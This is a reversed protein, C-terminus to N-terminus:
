LKKFWFLGWKQKHWKVDEPIYETEIWEKTHKESLYKGDDASPNMIVFEELEMGDLASIITMPEFIRGLNFELKEKGILVSFYADGGKWLVRQVSKLCKLWAEPDVLDGWRGLGMTDMVGLLSISGISEDAIESMYVANTCIFEVNDCPSKMPRIDFEIVRQGFTNLRSILGDYRGGVDVHIEPKSNFIKKSCWEEMWFYHAAFSSATRDWEGLCPMQNKESFKFSNPIDMKEQLECYMKKDDEYKKLYQYMKERKEQIAIEELTFLDLVAEKNIKINNVLDYWLQWYFVSSCILIKENKGGGSQLYKGLQFLPIYKIGDFETVSDSYYSDSLAIVNFQKKIIEKLERWEHGLGVVIINDM